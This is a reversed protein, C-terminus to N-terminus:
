SQLFSRSLGVKIMLRTKMNHDKMIILHKFNLYIFYLNEQVQKQM